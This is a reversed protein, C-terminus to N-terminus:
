MKYPTSCCRALADVAKINTRVSVRVGIKLLGVLVAYGVFGNGGTILVLPPSSMLFLLSLVGSPALQLAPLLRAAIGGGSIPITELNRGASWATKHQLARVDSM